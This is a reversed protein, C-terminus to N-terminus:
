VLLAGGCMNDTAVGLKSQYVVAGKVFTFAVSGSMERDIYPSLKHRHKCAAATTNTPAWPDWVVLDADMGERISGKRNSIGILAAPAESLVEALHKM